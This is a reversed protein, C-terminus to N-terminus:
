TVRHAIYTIHSRNKFLTPNIQQYQITVSIPGTLGTRVHNATVDEIAGDDIGAVVQNQGQTGGIDVRASGSKTSSAGSGQFTVGGWAIVKYTVWSAPPTLSLTAGSEYTTSLTSDNAGEAAADVMVLATAWDRIDNGWESTITEGGIVDPPVAM